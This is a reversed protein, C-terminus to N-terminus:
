RNQGDNVPGIAKLKLLCIFSGIGVFLHTMEVPVIKSTTLVGDAVGWIDASLGLLHTIINTILLVKLTGTDKNNRLLFIVAGSGIILGGMGRLLSTTEHTSVIGLSKAALGPLLFMLIGFAFSLISSILLFTSRKM